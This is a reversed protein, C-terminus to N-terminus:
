PQTVTYSCAPPCGDINEMVTSTLQYTTGTSSYTYQTADDKPDVPTKTMYLQTASCIGTGSGGLSTCDMYIGTGTDPYAGTSSRYLEIAQRVSEMDSKRRADRSNRSIDRFSVTAVAFMISGIAIVVMLEVFTFGKNNM